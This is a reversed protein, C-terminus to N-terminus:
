NAITAKLVALTRPYARLVFLTGVAHECMRAAAERVSEDADALYIDRRCVRGISMDLDGKHGFLTDGQPSCAL